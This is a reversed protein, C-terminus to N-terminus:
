EADAEGAEDQVVKRQWTATAVGHTRNKCGHWSIFHLRILTMRAKKNKRGIYYFTRGCVNLLFYKLSRYLFLDRNNEIKNGKFM